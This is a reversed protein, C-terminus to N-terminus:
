FLPPLTLGKIKRGRKSVSLTLNKNRRNKKKKKAEKLSVGVALVHVPRGQIDPFFKM